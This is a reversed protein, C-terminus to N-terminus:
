EFWFKTIPINKSLPKSALKLEFVFIRLTQLSWKWNKACNQTVFNFGNEPFVLCLGWSLTFEFNTMSLKKSFPKSTVKLDFAFTRQMQFPFNETKQFKQDVFSFDNQLFILCFMLFQKFWFITMPLKKSFPNSSEKLEIVLIAPTLFYCKKTEQFNKISSTSVMKDSLSAFHKFWFKNM